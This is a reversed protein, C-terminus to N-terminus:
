LAPDLDIRKEALPLPKRGIKKGKDPLGGLLEPIANENRLFDPRRDCAVPEFSPKTLRKTETQVAQRHGPVHSDKRSNGTRFWGQLSQNIGEAPYELLEVM